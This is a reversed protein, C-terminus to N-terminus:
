YTKGDKWAKIWRVPKGSFEIYITTVTDPKFPVEKDNDDARIVGPIREMFFADARRIGYTSQAASCISVLSFCIIFVFRYNM